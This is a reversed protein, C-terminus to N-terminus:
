FPPPDQCRPQQRQRRRQRNHARETTIRQARAKTRPTRRTPMMVLHGTTQGPETTLPLAGTPTMLSPFLLASGPTTLYVRNDPLTWIVTGDPLQHDRWGWFTKLIHHLRCLCKINSAHTAGRPYPVTHDLDCDTAPRDCGPARCTLDRARVFDALAGSPRYRPEPEAAAPDFLPRTKATVALGRLLDAPILEGAGLLYGPTDSRGELSAQDAVVHIVVPSPTAATAPCDPSGCRCLL